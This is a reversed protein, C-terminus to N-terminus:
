SLRLVTYLGVKLESSRGGPSSRTLEIEKVWTGDRERPAGQVVAKYSHNYKKQLYASLYFATSTDVGGRESLFCAFHKCFINLVLAAVRIVKISDITSTL